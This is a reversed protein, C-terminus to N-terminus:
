TILDNPGLSRWAEADRDRLGESECHAQDARCGLSTALLCLLGRICHGAKDGANHEGGPAGLIIYKPNPTNPCQLSGAGLRAPVPLRKDGQTVLVTGSAISHM